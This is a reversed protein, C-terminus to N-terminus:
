DMEENPILLIDGWVYATPNRRWIRYKETAQDNVHVGEEVIQEPYDFERGVMVGDDTQVLVVANGGVYGQLEELTFKRNSGQPAVSIQSGNPKLLLAM